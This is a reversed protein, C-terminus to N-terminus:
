VLKESFTLPKATINETGEHKLPIRYPVFDLYDASILRFNIGEYEIEAPIDYMGHIHGFFCRTIGCKHLVDLLGRCQQNKFVVPFHLFCLIEEAGEAGPLHLGSQISLTLRGAERAIIKDFDTDHPALKEDYFWGRTGVILQREVLYANNYLFRISNLDAEKAFAQLKSLSSWWFDHNGKGIIKTGPLSHLLRLGEAADALTMGWSIDGPLVVTDQACVTKTWREILKDTYGIWRHGFVDMKKDLKQSLHTDALVYLSM